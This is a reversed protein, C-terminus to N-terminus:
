KRYRTNFSIFISTFICVESAYLACPDLNGQLTVDPGLRNRAEVPDVTWDLGIVEYTKSKALLELSHM